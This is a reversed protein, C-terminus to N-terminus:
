SFPLPNCLKLKGHFDLALSLMRHRFGLGGQSKGKNLTRAGNNEQSGLGWILCALSTGEAQKGMRDAPEDTPLNKTMLVERM